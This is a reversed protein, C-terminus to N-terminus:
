APPIWVLEERVFTRARKPSTYVGEVRPNGRSQWLRKEWGLTAQVKTTGCDENCRPKVHFRNKREGAGGFWYKMIKSVDGTCSEAQCLFDTNALKCSEGLDYARTM